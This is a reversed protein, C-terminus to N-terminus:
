LLLRSMTINNIIVIIFVSGGFGYSDAKTRLGRFSVKPSLGTESQFGSFTLSCGMLEIEPAKATRVRYDSKEM